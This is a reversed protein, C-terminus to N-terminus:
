KKDLFTNVTYDYIADWRELAKKSAELSIEWRKLQEDYNNISFGGGYDEENEKDRAKKYVEYKAMEATDRIVEGRARHVQQRVLEVISKAKEIDIM